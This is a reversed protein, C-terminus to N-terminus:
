GRWERYCVSGEFETGFRRRAHKLRLRTGGPPGRTVRCLPGKNESLSLSWFRAFTQVRLIAERIQGSQSMGPSPMQRPHWPVPFIGASFDDRRIEHRSLTGASCPSRSNGSTRRNPRFGPQRHSRIVSLHFRAFLPRDDWFSGRRQSREFSAQCPGSGLPAAAGKSQTGAIGSLRRGIECRPPQRTIKASALQARYVAITPKATSTRPKLEPLV